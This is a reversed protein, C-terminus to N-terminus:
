PSTVCAVEGEEKKSKINGKKHLNTTISTLSYKTELLSSLKLFVAEFRFSDLLVFLFTLALYIALGVAHRILTM